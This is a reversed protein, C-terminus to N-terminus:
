CNLGKSIRCSEENDHNHGGKKTTNEIQLKVIELLLDIVRKYKDINKQDYEPMAICVKRKDNCISLIYNYHLLNSSCITYIKSFM